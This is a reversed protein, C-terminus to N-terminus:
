ELIEPHYAKTGDDNSLRSLVAHNADLGVYTGDDQDTIMNWNYIFKAQSFWNSSKNNNTPLLNIANVLANTFNQSGNNITTSGYIDPYRFNYYAMQAEVLRESTEGQSIFNTGDNSSWSGYNDDPAVKCANELLKYFNSNDNGGRQAYTWLTNNGIVGARWMKVLGMRVFPNSFTGWEHKCFDLVCRIPHCAESCLTVWDTPFAGCFEESL